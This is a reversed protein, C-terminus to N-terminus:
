VDTCIKLAIPDNSISINCKFIHHICTDDAFANVMQQHLKLYKVDTYFKFAIPSIRTDNSQSRLQELGRLTGFKLM